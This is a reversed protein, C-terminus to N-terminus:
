SFFLSFPTLLIMRKYWGDVHRVGSRWMHWKLACSRSKKTCKCTKNKGIKSRKKESRDVKKQILFFSFLPPLITQEAYWRGVKVHRLVVRGIHRSMGCKSTWIVSKKQVITQKKKCSQNAHKNNRKKGILWSKKTLFFSFFTCTLDNMKCALVVETSWLIQEVLMGYVAWDVSRWM